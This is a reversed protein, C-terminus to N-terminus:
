INVQLPLFIKSRKVPDKERELQSFMMKMTDIEKKPLRKM